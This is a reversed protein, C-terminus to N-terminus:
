HCSSEGISNSLSDSVDLTSTACHKSTGTEACRTTGFAVLRGTVSGTRWIRAFTDICWSVPRCVSERMHERRFSRATAQTQSSLSQNKCLPSCSIEFGESSFLRVSYSTSREVQGVSATRGLIAPRDNGPFHLVVLLLRSCLWWCLPSITKPLTRRSHHRGTREHM